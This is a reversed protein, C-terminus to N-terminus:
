RSRDTALKAPLLAAVAGSASGFLPIRVRSPGLPRRNSDPRGISLNTIAPRKQQDPTFSRFAAPDLAASLSTAVM